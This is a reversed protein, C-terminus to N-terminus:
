KEELNNIPVMKLEGCENCYITSVKRGNLEEHEIYISFEDYIFDPIFEKYGCKLCISEIDDDVKCDLEDIFKKMM